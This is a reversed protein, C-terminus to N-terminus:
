RVLSHFVEPLRTPLSGVDEVCTFGKPGFITRLYGHDKLDMSICHVHIGFKRAERVAIATDHIGYKGRYAEGDEPKGDSLLLLIREPEPRGQLRVTAHRIYVGLRSGGGAQLSGMRKDVEIPDDKWDQIRQFRCSQAGEGSFGFFSHPVDLTKLAESFLVVAVQEQSLIRGNTSGSLDVLTMIALPKRNRQFRRYLNDNPTQGAQIDTIASIAREVDIESGDRQGHLWRQEIKLESFRRKLATIERRHTNRIAQVADRPGTPADQEIIRVADRRYQSISSDWEDYRFGDKTTTSVPPQNWKQTPATTGREPKKAKEALKLLLAQLPKPGKKWAQSAALEAEEDYLFWAPHLAGVWLPIPPAGLRRERFAERLQQAVGALVLRIGIPSTAADLPAVIEDVWDVSRQGDVLGVLLAQFAAPMGEQDVNQNGIRLTCFKKSARVRRLDNYTGPFRTEWTSTAARAMLITSTCQLVWDQHLESMWARQETFGMASLDAQLLAMCRYGAADLDPEIPQPLSAPLFICRGDTSPPDAHGLTWTRDTLMNVWAQLRRGHDSLNTGAESHIVNEPAGFLFPSLLRQEAEQDSLGELSAGEPQEWTPAGM